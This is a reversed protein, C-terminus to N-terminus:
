QGLVKRVGALSQGRYLQAGTSDAVIFYPTRTVALQKLPLAAIAGPMWASIYGDSETTIEPQSHWAASDAAISIDAIRLKKGTMNEMIRSIQRRMSDPREDANRTFILLSYDSEGATYTTMSDAATYLRLPILSSNEAVSDRAAIGAMINETLFEPRAKTDILQLLSDAATEQGTADFETLLLITSTLDKTNNRIYAAIASNVAAHDKRTLADSNDRMFGAMRKSVDNGKLTLKYPETRDISVEVTEGNKVALRMLPVRDSTFIEVLTEAPSNGTFNFKGDVATSTLSKIGTTTYYIIRLNQTGLGDVTGTVRFQSDDGCGSMTLGILAILLFSFRIPNM